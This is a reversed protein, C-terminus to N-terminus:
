VYYYDDYINDYEYGYDDTSDEKGFIDKWLNIIDQYPLNQILKVWDTSGSQTQAWASLQSKATEPSPPVYTGPTTTAPRKTVLYVAAVAALAIVVTTATSVKGIM